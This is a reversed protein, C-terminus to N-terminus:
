YVCQVIDKSSSHPEQSSGLECCRTVMTYSVPGKGGKGGEGKGREGKGGKGREGEKM